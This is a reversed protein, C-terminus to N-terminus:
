FLFYMPWKLCKFRTFVTRRGRKPAGGVCGVGIGDRGQPDRVENREGRYVFFIRATLTEFHPASLMNWRLYMCRGPKSHQVQDSYSVSGVLINSFYKAVMKRRGKDDRTYATLLTPLQLFRCGHCSAVSL